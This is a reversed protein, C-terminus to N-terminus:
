LNSTSNIHIRKLSNFSSGSKSYIYNDIICAKNKYFWNDTSIRSICTGDIRMKFLGESVHTDNLLVRKALKFMTDPKESDKTHYRGFYIWGNYIVYNKEVNEQLKETSGYTTIPIRYLCGKDIYYLFDCHINVPTGINGRGLDRTSILNGSFDSVCLTTSFELADSYAVHHTESKTYYFREDVVNLQYARSMEPIKIEQGAEDLCYFADVTDTFFIRNNVVMMYKAYVNSLKSKIRTNINIKYIGDFTCFYLWEGIVNLNYANVSDLQEKSKNDLTSSYLSGNICYYLIGGQETIFGKNIINPSSNGYKNIPTRKINSNIYVSSNERPSEKPLDNTTEPQFPKIEQDKFLSKAVAITTGTLVAGKIVNSLLGKKPIDNNNQDKPM